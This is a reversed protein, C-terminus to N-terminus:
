GTDGADVLAIFAYQVRLFLTKNDVKDTDRNKWMLPRGDRTAKGSIVALTCAGAEAAGSLVVAVLLIVATPISKRARM